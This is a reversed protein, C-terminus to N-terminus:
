NATGGRVIIKGPRSGIHKGNEVVIQGNVLVHLVGESYAHPKEFTAKDEITKEDFVLIDAAYGERLLGRDKLQVRQAPLSTMRRVAEELTIVKRDRVYRGLVRANTGYIRPHPVGVRFPVLRADSAIANFPYRLITEVDDESMMHLVCFAGGRDIMDMMLEIEAAANDARGLGLNIETVSKGNYSPDAKFNAIVVYSNNDFGKEKMLDFTEAAIKARVSPTHLRVRLSSDGDAFIWTPFVFNLGTSGATYPYQDITVDLGERRAHEVLAITETSKGWASKDGIKFHSIEVPLGAERGVNIAEEIANKVTAGTEGRIHSSYIGHYKASIKALNVIEPTKSYTGPVYILGTSLGLAGDQMAKEVLNAMQAQEQATPDRFANKMVQARVHNHGIFTGVNLSIKLKRLENFFRPLDTESLGCNGTIITTVGDLLFCDATPVLRIGEEVHTHIDIFGPSVIRNQADIVQKAKEGKLHGIFVIKGDRIGVDARYWANGTGDVIRGNTILIDFPTQALVAKIPFLLSILLLLKKM